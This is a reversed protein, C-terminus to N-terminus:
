LVRGGFRRERKQFELLINVLEQESFDPWLVPSFYLESYAAQWLLFNSLRLEGSTRIILEPDSVFNTDLYNAIVDESIDQISYVNRELDQAAKIFARKIEDRAGYNLALVLTYKPSEVVANKIDQIKEQLALPLRTLDGITELRISYRKLHPFIEDLCSFFLDMLGSIEEESRKWNETSFAYLTVTNINLDSRCLFKLLGIVAESGKAHGDSEPLGQIKAWRRNGDMIFAIHKPMKDKELKELGEVYFLEEDQFLDVDHELSFLPFFVSILIVILASYM